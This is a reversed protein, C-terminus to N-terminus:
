ILDLKRDLPKFYYYFTSSDCLKLIRISITVFRAEPTQSNTQYFTNQKLYDILLFYIIFLSSILLILNINDSPFVFKLLKCQAAVLVILATCYQRANVKYHKGWWKLQIVTITIECDRRRRGGGGGDTRRQVQGWKGWFQIRQGMAADDPQQDTHKRDATWSVTERERVREPRVHEGGRQVLKQANTSVACCLVVCSSSRM